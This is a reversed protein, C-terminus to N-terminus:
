RQSPPNFDTRSNRRSKRAFNIFRDFERQLPVVFSEPKPTSTNVKPVFMNVGLATMRGESVQDQGTLLVIYAVIAPEHSRVARILPMSYLDGPIDYCALIFWDDGPAALVADRAAEPDTFGEMATETQRLRDELIRRIAGFLISGEITELCLFRRKM